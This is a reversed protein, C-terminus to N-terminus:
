FLDAAWGYVGTISLLIPLVALACIWQAIDGWHGWRPILRRGPLTQAGAVALGALSLLGLLLCLRGLVPMSTSWGLLLAALGVGGPAMASLRHWTSTLERAQLLLLTSMLFTLLITDWRVVSAMVILGGVSIGGLVALIASVHADTLSARDLVDEGPLPDLGQQFEDHTIPVPEVALGGLRAAIYPALRTLWVAVTMLIAAASAADLGVLVALVGGLAVLVGGGALAQFAPKAVSVSVRAVAAAVAVAVGASLVGPGNFWVPPSSAAPFALGAVAAAFIGVGALMAAAGRSDRVYHSLGAAGALLLVAVVAANAAVAAGTAAHVGVVIALLGCVGATTMCANRTFAPRWTDGRGSLGTHVGDVLDDVEAVPLQDNRPRLYLTDGDYLGAEAIGKDEDLREEGLRQLVWGGHGLGSTALKPDLHGLVTPMLDAVPVHAPVALEVRSSPGTITLRCMESSGGSSPATPTTTEM